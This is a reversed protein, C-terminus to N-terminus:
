VARARANESQEGLAALAEDMPLGADVLTALQRSMVALQGRSLGRRMGTAVAIGAGGRERVQAVELPTLGRERLVGRAARATDAQLVGSQTRGAADLAQFEFAGM